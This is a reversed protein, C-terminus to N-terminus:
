SVVNLWFIFLTLSVFLSVIRCPMPHQSQGIREEFMSPRHCPSCTDTQKTYMSSVVPLFTFFCRVQLAFSQVPMTISNNIDLITAPHLGFSNRIPGITTSAQKFHSHLCSLFAFRCYVIWSLVNGQNLAKHQVLILATVGSSGLSGRM